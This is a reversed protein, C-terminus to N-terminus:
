APSDKVLGLQHARVIAQARNIVGLKSFISNNHRKVTNMSIVLQEAIEQNSLGGCILRLIEVERLSLPAILSSQLDSTTSPHIASPRPGPFAALLKEAYAMLRTVQEGHAVPTQKGIRSRFEEILLRMPEGEDVFIRVYGEPEALSLSKELVAFAQASNNQAKLALAQLLLIDILRGYRGGAEAAEALPILRGLAQEFRDQAILVRAITIRELEGPLGPKEEEPQGGESVQEQEAWRVASGLEGQALWLRIRHVEFIRRFTHFVGSQYVPEDAKKFAEIAGGLDGQALCVRGLVTYGNLLDSPSIWQKMSEIANLTYQRAVELENRERLLDAYGINLGGMTGFHRGGREAALQRAEQYTEEAARLKGQVKRLTALKSQAVSITWVVDLARGIKLIDACAESAKELDGLAFYGDSLVFPIVSRSLLSSEPLLEDAKRAYEVATTIQDRIDAIIARVIAITGLVERGQPSADGSELYDEADQLHPEVAELQGSFTLALAYGVSLMPRAHVVKEPLANIRSLLTTLEGRTLFVQVSEEVLRAAWEYDRVALAHNIAEIEWGAEEYWKCARLHLATVLDPQAQRLRTQLLDAFLHHYRYWHHEDDLPVLFLNARELRELMEQSNFSQELIADCLSGSLRSLISTRLLFAQIDESQRNLVEEVLYELIYRHSGSFSQIFESVDQRGQLSLAVMQLGVIWGETRAELATIDQAALDLGMVRKLFEATEQPNFRLDDTRIEVLQNRGRYRALPLSPDARTAIVLHMQPPRHDLLYAMAENVAQSEIFQYDDLVLVFPEPLESLENILTVLIAQPPLPQPSQLMLGAGSGLDPLASQLAAVLYSLFRHPDNDGADLSVWAVPLLCNAAWEALLTTKGFGAPASLITLAQQVGENIKSILLPRRVLAPRTSPIFLKTKLLPAQLEPAMRKAVQRGRTLSSGAKSM